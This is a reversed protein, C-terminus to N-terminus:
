MYEAVELDKSITYKKGDIVFSTIELECNAYVTMYLGVSTFTGPFTVTKTYEIWDKLPSLDFAKAAGNAMFAVVAGPNDPYKQNYAKASIQVTPNTWIGEVYPKFTQTTSRFNALSITKSATQTIFSGSGRFTASAKDLYAFNAWAEEWANSATNYKKASECEMWANNSYRRLVGIDEWAGNVYKKVM